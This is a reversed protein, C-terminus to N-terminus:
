GEKVKLDKGMVFSLAENVAEEKLKTLNAEVREKAKAILEEQQELIVQCLAAMLVGREREIGGEEYIKLENGRTIKMKVENSNVFSCKENSEELYDQYKKQKFFSM